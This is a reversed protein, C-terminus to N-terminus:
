ERAWPPAPPYIAEREQCVGFLIRRPSFSIKFLSRILCVFEKKGEYGGGGGHPLGWCLGTNGVNDSHSPPRFQACRRTEAAEALVPTSTLRHALGGAGDDGAGERCGGTGGGGGKRM